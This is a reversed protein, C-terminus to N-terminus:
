PVLVRLSQPVAHIEVPGEGADEGDVMLRKPERTEIRISQTRFFGINDRTAPLGALAHTALHLSTTLAEAMGRIAVLTVDLLGDDCVVHGPGQALLSSTRALNAVTIASAECTFRQGGAEITAEFLSDGLMRQAEEIVYALAGYRRKKEPDAETVADAHLGMTAMLVMVRGNVLATDLVRDKGNTIIACAASLDATIGLETAISNATGRPLIGLRLGERGTAASAVASVTGDGGSAILVESGGFVAARALLAPDNQEDVLRVDLQFHSSLLLQARELDEDNASGGSPSHILTARM